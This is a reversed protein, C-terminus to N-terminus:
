RSEPLFTTDFARTFLLALTHTSSGQPFAASYSYTASLSSERFSWVVSALATANSGQGFQHSADFSLNGFTGPGLRFADSLRGFAQRLHFSQTSSSSDVYGGAFTLRTRYLPSTGTVSATFTDNESFTTLPPTTPQAASGEPQPPAFFANQAVHTYSALPLLFVPYYLSVDASALAGYSRLSNGASSRDERDLYFASAHVPARPLAWQLTANFGYGYLGGSTGDSVSSYGAQGTAALSGSLRGWRAQTAIGQSASVAEVKRDLGPALYRTSTAAVGEGLLLPIPKLDVTSGVSAQNASQQRDPAVDSSFGYQGRLLVHSSLRTIVGGAASYSTFADTPVGGLGTSRSLSGDFTARTDQSLTATDSISALAITTRPQGSFQLGQWSGLASYRNLQSSGYVSGIVADSTTRAGVADDQTLHEGRVEARPLVPSVLQAFGQMATTSTVAAPSLTSGAVALAHGYSLTIPLISGSLLSLSTGYGFSYTKGRSPGFTDLRLVLLYSRFKVLRSEYIWGSLSLNLGESLQHTAVLHDGARQWSGLYSVLGNGSLEYQPIEGLFVQGRASSPWAALALLLAVTCTLSRRMTM